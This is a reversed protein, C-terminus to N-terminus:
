RSGKRARANGAVDTYVMGAARIIRKESLLDSVEKRSLFDQIPGEQFLLDLWKGEGDLARHSARQIWRYAEERQAGARVLALLVHGSLPVGGSARLNQLIRKEDVHLDALVKALRALAYDALIFADPLIVREVASHSIDREHWLAVNELAPIVYSRLLRACGTLNESAVPNRKHPMASSGKQLKSFGERAEGVESRSLHRIETAIREITSGMLAFVTFLEALRDRPLTQTSVPERELELRRLIRREVAPAFHVNAGVAGSLKGFRNAELARELRVRDRTLQEYYGLFRLGFVTPEAHMGHTRGISPLNRYRKALRLAEKRVSDLAQLLLSGAEATGMSLATDVVDTSTLGYHFYRGAPGIREACFTTFALVDHKLDNELREIERMAKRTKENSVGALETRLLRDAGRLLAQGDTRPLIRDRVQVEAVAREVELWRRFKAEETWIRAMPERSYRAIM